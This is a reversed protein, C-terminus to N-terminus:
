PTYTFRILAGPNELTNTVTGDGKQVNGEKDTLVYLVNGAPNAIVDRYRNNSKFMPVANDYTVSYTPDMKIRFIVGRKLSPVLLVNSWGPIAKQGGNYVYASAPAVTPWCIYTMEGCMPDNYSYTDQVTYLTKLPAVFNKGQWESEKMVPVGDMVKLGNQALDKIQSQNKAASYNAYAYGSDDKYGAVNPWGYNGGKIIENIEDDSNPGQEAQLLKGNPSFALGQPNRHGITYIHSVVGDFSPNDNPISGDLNLRLVKGMYTHYDKNKLDQQTPTHQAQNPLFLYALQNRGQDGITYYLKQDPGIILRGAQHDKASPLGAILDLPKEFSDTTKNYTYRRIITQNPLNKDTANPNKFTGSVYIYPHQKFNPHFTFGLFGNQAHDDNIIDPVQFVTKAAGTEPNVRIIKGTALETLWIQNDPGWLLAHPKNLNSLLVKKDFKQSDAKAFQAPTLPIDAFVSASVCSQIIGLVAMKVLLHKKM